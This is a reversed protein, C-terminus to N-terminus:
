RNNNSEQFNNERGHCGAIEGLLSEDEAVCGRNWNTSIFVNCDSTKEGCELEM